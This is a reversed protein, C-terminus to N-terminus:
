NIKFKKITTLNGKNPNYTVQKFGKSIIIDFM